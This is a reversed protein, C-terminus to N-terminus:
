IIAGRNSAVTTKPVESVWVALLPPEINKFNKCNGINITEKEFNIYYFDIGVFAQENKCNTLTRSINIRDKNLIKRNNNTNHSVIM